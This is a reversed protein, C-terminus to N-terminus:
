FHSNYEDTESDEGFHIILDEAANDTIGAIIWYKEEFKECHNRGDKWFKADMSNFSKLILHNIEESNNNLNHMFFDKEIPGM